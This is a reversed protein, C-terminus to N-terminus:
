PLQPTGIVPTKVPTAIGVFKTITNNGLNTLWVSGSADITIGFCQLMAADPGWGTSPSLAQGPSSSSAGSFESLSPSITASLGRFNAVWVNGAGDIALGVPQALGGGQYGPSIVANTASSIQSISNGYYNSAWIYGLQDIALGDPSDCCHVNTFQKGDPTVRTIYDVGQNAVWGNHNGDV